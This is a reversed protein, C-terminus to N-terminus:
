NKKRLLDRTTFLSFMFWGLMIATFVLIWSNDIKNLVVTTFLVCAIILEFFWALKSSPLIEIYKM